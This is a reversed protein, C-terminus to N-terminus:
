PLEEDLLSETEAVESEIADLEEELTAVDSEDPGTPTTPTEEVMTTSSVPSPVSAGSMTTEVSSVATTATSCASVLLAAAVLTSRAPRM